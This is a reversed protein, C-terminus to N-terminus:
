GNDGGGLMRGVTIGLWVEILCFAFVAMLWIM